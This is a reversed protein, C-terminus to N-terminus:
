PVIEQTPETLSYLIERPLVEILMRLAIESGDFSGGNPTIIILLETNRPVIVFEPIEGRSVKNGETLEPSGVPGIVVQNTQPFVRYNSVRREGSIQAQDRVGIAITMAVIDGNELAADRVIWRENGQPTFVWTITGSGAAPVVIRSVPRFKTRYFEADVIPSLTKQLDAGPQAANKGYALSIATLVQDNVSNTPIHPPHLEPQIPM